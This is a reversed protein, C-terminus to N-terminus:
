FGPYSPPTIGFTSLIFRIIGFASVMVFMGILGFILKRQGEARKADATESNIFQVIGWFFVLLAVAFALTIIPNLVLDNVKNLLTVITM